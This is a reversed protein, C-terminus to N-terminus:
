RLMMVVIVVAIVLLATITGSVIASKYVELEEKVSTNKPSLVKDHESRSTIARGLNHLAADESDKSQSSVLGTNADTKKDKIEHKTEDFLEFQRTPQKKDREVDSSAVAPQENRQSIRESRSDEKGRNDRSSVEYNDGNIRGARGEVQVEEAPKKPTERVASKEVTEVGRPPQGESTVINKNQHLGDRKTNAQERTTTVERAEQEIRLKQTLEQQKELLSDIRDETKQRQDAAEEQLENKLNKKRHASIREAAVFAALAAGTSERYVETTHEILEPNAVEQDHIYSAMGAEEPLTETAGDTLTEGGSSYPLEEQDFDKASDVTEAHEINSNQLGANDLEHVVTTSQELVRGEEDNSMGLAPPPLEIADNVIQSLDEDSEEKDKLAENFWSTVEESTGARPSTAEKSNEEVSSGDDRIGLMRLFRRSLTKQRRKQTTSESDEDEDDDESDHDEETNRTIFREVFGLFRKGSQFSQEEAAYSIKNEDDEDNHHSRFREAM